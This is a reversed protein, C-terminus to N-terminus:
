GRDRQRRYMLTYMQTYEKSPCRKEACVCLSIIPETERVGGDIADGTEKAKEREREREKQLENCIHFNLRGEETCAFLVPGWSTSVIAFDGKEKHEGSENRAAVKKRERARERERESEREKERGNSIRCFPASASPSISQPRSWSAQQLKSSEGDALTRHGLRHTMTEERDEKRRPRKRKRAEQNDGEFSQM